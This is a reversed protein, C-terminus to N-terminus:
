ALCIALITYEKNEDFSPSNILKTLADFSSTGKNNMKIYKGDYYMTIIYDKM